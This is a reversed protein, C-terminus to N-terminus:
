YCPFNNPNKASYFNTLDYMTNIPTFFTPYAITFQNLYICMNLTNNNFVYYMNSITSGGIKDDFNEGSFINIDDILDYYFGTPIWTETFIAEHDINLLSLNTLGFESFKKYGNDGYRRRAYQTGIFEAWSEAVQVIGWDTYDANGYGGDKGILSEAGALRAYWDNGVRWYQSAHGLEHFITQSLISSYHTQEIDGGVSFTMDPLQHSILFSFYVPMLFGYFKDMHAKILGPSAGIFNLLPSSAAGITGGRNWEAYCVLGRPAASINDNYSYQYHYYVGNLIQCWYRAQTHSSYNFDINYRMQCSSYWNEITIAGTLFETILVNLNFTNVPRIVIKDNKAFTGMITGFSFRWPLSYYGNDDTYSLAPIGFILGWVAMGKVTELRGLDNDQYRVYGHPRKFLCLRFENLQEETYGIERFAQFQTATDEDSIQVLTDLFVTQTEPRSSLAYIVITNTIPTVGYIFGDKLQEAKISDFGFEETYIAMNAFPIQLMFLSTDNKMTGFQEGTLENPNFKFYVFQQENDTLNSTSYIASKGNARALSAKAKLINRLSFPNTRQPLKLIPKALQSSTLLNSTPKLEKQCSNLLLFLPIALILM